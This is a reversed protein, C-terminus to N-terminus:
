KLKKDIYWIVYKTLKNEVLSNFISSLLILILLIVICIARKDINKSYLYFGLSCILPMHLLYIGM